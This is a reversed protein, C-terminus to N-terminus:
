DFKFVSLLIICFFIMFQTIHFLNLRSLVKQIAPVNAEEMSSQLKKAQRRRVVGGNLAAAVVLVIKIRMWLQHGYAGHVITMMGIGALIVILAGIRNVALNKPVFELFIKAYPSQADLQKWFGRFFIYDAVTTGVFLIIGIIHISLFANYLM